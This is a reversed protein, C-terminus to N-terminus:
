QGQNWRGICLRSNAGVVSFALCFHRVMKKRLQEMKARREELSLKPRSEEAQSGERTGTSEMGEMTMEDVFEMATDAIEKGKGKAASGEVPTGNGGSSKGSEVGDMTMESVFEQAAKGIDKAKAGLDGRADEDTMTEPATVEKVLEKAAAGVEALKHAADEVVHEVATETGVIAKEVSHAVSSVTDMASSTSAEPETEDVNMPTDEAVVDKAQAAKGKKAGKKKSGKPPM